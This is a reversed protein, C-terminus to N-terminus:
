QATARQDGAPQAPRARQVVLWLAPPGLWLSVVSLNLVLENAGNFFDPFWYWGFDFLLYVSLASASWVAALRRWREGALPALVILWILYWPQFWLTGLALLLAIAALMTEPMADQRRAARRLLLLYVGLFLALFLNRTLWEAQERGLGQELALKVIAAPSATFRNDLALTGAFTQSGQWLPAYVIAAVLMCWVLGTALVRARQTGRHAAVRSVGAVLLVPLAALAALKVLAALTGLVLAAWLGQRRYLWLAAVLLAMMLIDNHGNVATEFLLLPNWAFLLVGSLAEGEGRERMLDFLLISVAAACLVALLKFLLLNALLSNGALRYIVVSIDAWLPGYPSTFWVWVVYPFWPDDNVQLPTVTLPNYDHLGWLRARFIYDYIDTAGVPYVWILILSFLIGAGIVAIVAPRGSLRNALRSGELYCAFVVAYGCALAIAHLLGYGALKGLDLLPVDYWRLLPYPVVLMVAYV